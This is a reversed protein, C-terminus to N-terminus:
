VFDDEGGGFVIAGEAALRRATDIMRKQAVVVDALRIRGRQAIEDILGEAARTSMAGFFPQRQDEPLGKLADILVDSEIERLLTGMAMADLAFLHEFRFMENEIARALSKDAKNLVPIVRKQVPKGLGNIIAAAERAGGMTLATAGHCETIRRSLLDELMALAEPLVAGMTAVRRVIEPQQGEPMAHLVVAAVEPPLQALLVAVTQPHEAYILPVIADPLLWRTIEIAPPRANAPAIRRMLNDARVEGVAQTVQRHFQGLRDIPMHANREVGEVFRGIAADIAEPGIDTLADMRSGLLALEDPALHALVEAAQADDLLLVM